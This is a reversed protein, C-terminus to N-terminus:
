NNWTMFEDISNFTQKILWTKQQSKFNKVKSSKKLHDPLLNFLKRGMYSPQREYKTLHHNPLTFDNANRTNYNHTEGLRTLNQSVAYCIVELIFLSVVTLINLDKFASRCSDLANLDALTRVAKKRDITTLEKHKLTITSNYAPNKKM